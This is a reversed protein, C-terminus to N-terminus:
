KEILSSFDFGQFFEKLNRPLPEDYKKYYESNGKVEMLNFFEKALKEYSVAKTGIFISDTEISIGSETCNFKLKEPGSFRNWDLRMPPLNGFFVEQNKLNLTLLPKNSIPNAILLSDGRMELGKGPNTIQIKGNKLDIEFNTGM